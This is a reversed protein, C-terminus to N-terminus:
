PAVGLTDLAAESRGQIAQQQDPLFRHGMVRGMRQLERKDHMVGDRPLHRGKVLLRM